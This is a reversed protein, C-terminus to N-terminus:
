LFLFWFPDGVSQPWNISGCMPGGGPDCWSHYQHNTTFPSPPPLPEGKRFTFSSKKELSRGLFGFLPTGLSNSFNSFPSLKPFFFAPLKNGGVRFGFLPMGPPGLFLNPFSLVQGSLCFSSIKCFACVIHGLKEVEFNCQVLKAPFIKLSPSFVTVSFLGLKPPPSLSFVPIKPSSILSFFAHTRTSREGCNFPPAM